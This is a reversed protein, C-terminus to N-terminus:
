YRHEIEGFKNNEIKDFVIKGIISEQCSDIIIIEQVNQNNRTLLFIKEGELFMNDINPIKPLSFNKNFCGNHQITTAASDKYSLDVLKVYTMYIISICGVM